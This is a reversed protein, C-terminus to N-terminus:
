NGPAACQAPPDNAVPNFRAPALHSMPCTGAPRCARRRPLHDHDPGPHRRPLHDHDPGPHRRGSVKSSGEGAPIFLGQPFSLLFPKLKSLAKMESGERGVPEKPRYPLSQPLRQCPFLPIQSSGEGHRLWPWGRTLRLGRRCCVRQRVSAVHRVPRSQERAPCPATAAGALVVRRGFRHADSLRVRQTLADVPSSAGKFRPNPRLPFHPLQSHPFTSYIKWSQASFELGDTNQKYFRNSV